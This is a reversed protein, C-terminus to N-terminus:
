VIYDLMGEVPSCVLCQFVVEFVVAFEKILGSSYTQINISHPKIYGESICRGEIEKAIIKELTEKINKGINTISVSVQRTILAMM